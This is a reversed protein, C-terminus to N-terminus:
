IPRATASATPSRNSCLVPCPTLRGSGTKGARIGQVVHSEYLRCQNHDSIRCAIRRPMDSTVRMRECISEPSGAAASSSKGSTYSSSRFSAAALSACSFGPCVNCAVASTCSAYKRRISLSSECRHSEDGTAILLFNQAAEGVGERPPTDCEGGACALADSLATFDLVGNTLTADYVFGPAVGHIKMRQFGGSVAGGVVLLSCSEGLTPLHGEVFSLELSGGLVADGAVSLVPCDGSSASSTALTAGPGLVLDSELTLSQIAASPTASSGARLAVPAAVPPLTWEV